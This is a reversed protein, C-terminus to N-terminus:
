GAARDRLTLGVVHRRLLFPLAHHARLAEAPLPLRGDGSAPRCRSLQALAPAPFLLILALLLRVM